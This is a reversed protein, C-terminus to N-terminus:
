YTRYNSTILHPCRADEVHAPPIDINMNTFSASIMRLRRPRRSIRDYDNGATGTGRWGGTNDGFSGLRDTNRAKLTVYSGNLHHADRDYIANHVNLDDGIDVVM